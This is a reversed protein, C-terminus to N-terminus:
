TVQPESTLTQNVCLDINVIGHLITVTFHLRFLLLLLLLLTLLLADYKCSYQQGLYCTM